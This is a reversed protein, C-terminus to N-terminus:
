CIAARLPALLEKDVLDPLAMTRYGSLALWVNGKQDVVRADFGGDQRPTVISHLTTQGGESCKHVSLRDVRYPLGMRAQTALEWMGATQFCLEILRPAMLTPLDGPEHNAPLNSAFLGVVDEGARWSEEVVQYAPGHFYLRYIDRAAVKAGREPEVAAQHKGGKPANKVLRVCATFHTTTEPETQGHLVRSGTLRSCAVIEDGDVAFDVRTTVTRPQSRYFKFPAHFQVQEISGVHWDPYLVKAAEALAEIGMVGPLVPTGNIQHDYLFPQRGPELTTEIALGSYLGMGIVKDTMLGADNGAGAKATDLGGSEDFEHLMIGLKGAVVVEGQGGAILERRVMPIGAEPALMDIGAQKMVAPISGRAAMGIGSWATWDIAIGRTGPRSTRFNSILKCLLDNASSYDTQGSNGFRGAISSFVVAAGLPMSGLNSVLHFWGESKVDFVLDFEGPKKDALLHSIELGAAHLLVDVRGSTESVQKMVAAVAGADLLNVSYYHVSGGARRVSEIAALAAYSRELGAMEKEVLAPTAREGRAKLRYEGADNKEILIAKTTTSGCDTALIRTIQNKEM